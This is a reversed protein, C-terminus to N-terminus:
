PSDEDLQQPMDMREHLVRVVDLFGDEVRYFIVHKGVSIKWYGTRISDCRRGSFRSETLKEFALQIARLYKEAQAVDWFEVTYDWISQLDEVAKPRLRLELM